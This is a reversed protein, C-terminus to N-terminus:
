EFYQTHIAKAHATDIVFNNDPSSINSIENNLLPSNAILHGSYDLWLVESEDIVPFVNWYDKKSFQDNKLKVNLNINNIEETKQYNPFRINVWERILKINYVDVENDSEDYYERSVNEAESRTYIYGNSLLYAAVPDLTGWTILDKIWFVVWPLDTKEWDDLTLLSSKGDNIEEIVMALVTSLGWNFKYVFNDYVFKIWEAKQNEKGPKVEGKGSTIWWILISEWEVSSKNRKIGEKISFKELMNIHEICNKIFKVREKNTWNQYEEGSKLHSIIQQHIKFLQKAFRPQLSTKYIKNRYKKDQYIDNIVANGRKLFIKEMSEEATSVYFAYTNKWIYKILDEHESLPLNGRDEDSNEYEVVASLIVSDLTDLAQEAVLDNRDQFIENNDSPICTELWEQFEDNSKTGTIQEWQDKIYIILNALPSPNKHQNQLVATDDLYGLLINRYHNRANEASYLISSSPKELFVLSRGETGNGPRGARGTLNKFESISITDGRRSLVPVLVIDFPLNIGESLTSSALVVNVIRSNIVEILLKSYISPMKGYHVVIGKELLKYENSNEGYYDICSKLCKEWLDKKYPETPEKFFVPLGEKYVKTIVHYFDNAYGNVHQMVSILVTDSQEHEKVKAFQLAAWFLFPRSYKPFGNNNTNSYRRPLDIFKLPSAEIPNPIFPSIGRDGTYNTSLSAGNLVDYRISFDGSKQFELRGILQRTSRYPTEEPSFSDNTLWKTLKSSDEGIVASLAIVKKRNDHLYSILRSALSELRLSRNDGSVLTEANHDYQVSHAEDIIVLSLRNLFLPGLFRLLAEGKEYTCILVTKDDHTIWTDTPGWDIGGYLGTVIVNENPINKLVRNMKSETESALARSPVLYLVIPQGLHFPVDINTELNENNKASFLSKIISIEAITTKGSGTPTCLVFSDENILKDLGRLQSPWLLSKNELFNKRIYIELAKNFSKGEVKYLDETATRISQKVYREFLEACLKSLLWNYSNKDHILIRSIDRFKNIARQLRDRVGWKLFGVLLGIISVVERAIYKNFDEEFNLVDTEFSKPENNRWYANIKKELNIFDNKLFLRLIESEESSEKREKLLGLAIAPYGAIQYSAASIFHLPYSHENIAPHSLYELMEGGNSFFEEWGERSEDKLTFGLYLLRFAESLNDQYDKSSWSKLGGKNLNVKTYHSYLKALSNSIHKSQFSKYYSEIVSEMEQSVKKNAM